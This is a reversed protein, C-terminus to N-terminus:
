GPEVSMATAFLKGYTALPLEFVGDDKGDLPKAGGPETDGWPNRLRIFKQGGAERTGLVSYSHDAFVGSNTFRAHYTEPYTGTSVPLHKALQGKIFDFTADATAPTVDRYDAKQGLVAQFVDSSFGGSGIKQYGNTGGKWVAYAKELLPFWREMRAPTQNGASRGYFPGGSKGVYLDGDVTVTEPSFKGTARDFRQFTVDVTGDGNDKMAHELVKPNVSAIAAIASPFYCDALSGQQVDAVRAGNQFLPGTFRETVYRPKGSPTLDDSHLKPDPLDRKGGHTTIGGTGRTAVHTGGASSPIPARRPAGFDDAAPARAKSATRAAPAARKAAAARTRPAATPLDLTRTKM